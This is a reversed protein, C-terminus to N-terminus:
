GREAINSENPTFFNGFAALDRRLRARARNIRSKVTGEGLNLIKGIEEYSLGNVDRLVIMERHNVPLAEIASRLVANREQEELMALPSPAPDEPEIVYGGEESDRYLSTTDPMAGKRRLHDIATNMAVRYLYTSFNSEARFRPLGIYVKLFVEQAIDEADERSCCMRLATSYVKHQYRRVLEAFAEKNGSVISQVLELDDLETARNM